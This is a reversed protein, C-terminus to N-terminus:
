VVVKLINFIPAKHAYLGSYKHIPQNIISKEFNSLNLRLINNVQTVLPVQPPEKMEEDAMDEVLDEKSSGKHKKTADKTKQFVYGLGETM